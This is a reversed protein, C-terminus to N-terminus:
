IAKRDRGSYIGTDFEGARGLKMWRFSPGAEDFTFKEFGSLSNAASSPSGLLRIAQHQAEFSQHIHGWLVAKVNEKDDLLSMMEGANLLPFRDIWPSGCLVPQHHLVIIKPLSSDALAQKLGDLMRATLTGAIEKEIVSNLLVLQWGPLDFVLPAEVATDPFHKKQIMARDHNGPVTLVPVGFAKMFQALYRYAAESGDEALDGSLLLYDPRLERIPERLSELMKRPNVGRYAADKNASVHCDTIQIINLM